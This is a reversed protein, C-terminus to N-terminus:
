LYTEAQRIIQCPPYMLDWQRYRIVSHHGMSFGYETWRMPTIVAGSRPRITYCEPM